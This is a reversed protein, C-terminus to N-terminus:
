MPTVYIRDGPLLHIARMVSSQLLVTNMNISVRFQGGYFCGNKVKGILASHNLETKHCASDCYYFGGQQISKIDDIQATYQLGGDMPDVRYKYTFGQKTLMHQQARGTDLVSRINRHLVKQDPYLTIDNGPFYEQIFSRDKLCAAQFVSEYEYGTYKKGMATWFPNSGNLNTPAMLESLITSHFFHPFMGLFVFRILSIQKGRKEPLGRYRSDVVLGGLASIGNTEFGLRLLQHGPKVPFDPSPNDSDYVTFFYFPHGKDAYNSFLTSTGTVEGSEQDTLVFIYQQDEVDKEGSFSAISKNIKEYLIDKNTPLNLLSSTLSLAYIDDLDTLSVSRILFRIDQSDM